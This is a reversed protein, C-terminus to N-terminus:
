YIFPLVLIQVWSEIGERVNEQSHVVNEATGRREPFCALTSHTLAFTFALGGVKLNNGSYVRNLTSLM